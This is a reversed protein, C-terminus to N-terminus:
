GELLATGQDADYARCGLILKPDDQMLTIPSEPEESLMSTERIDPTM